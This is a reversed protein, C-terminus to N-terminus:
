VGCTRNSSSIENLLTKIKTEDKSNKIGTLDLDNILREALDDISLEHVAVRKRWVSYPAIVDSLVMEADGCKATVFEVGPAKRHIAHGAFSGHV